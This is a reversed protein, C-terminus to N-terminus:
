PWRQAGHVINLILVRDEFARYVVIYPLRPLALERTNEIRGYRGRFPMTRLSQVIDYIMRAVQNATELNRDHEIYDSIAELDSVAHVSWEIRM